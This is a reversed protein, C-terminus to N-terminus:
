RYNKTIICTGGQNSLMRRYNKTNNGTSNIGGTPLVFVYFKIDGTLRSRCLIVTRIGSLYFVFCGGSPEFLVLIIFSSLRCLWQFILCIGYGHKIRKLREHKRSTTKHKLYILCGPKPPTRANRPYLFDKTNETIGHKNPLPKPHQQNQNTPLFPYKPTQLCAREKTFVSSLTYGAKLPPCSCDPNLAKKL